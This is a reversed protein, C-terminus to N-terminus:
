LVADQYLANNMLNGYAHSMLNQGYQKEEVPHCTACDEPTVVTHVQYGNHEFTDSHKEPNLTHCEACGVVNQVLDSPVWKASVRRELEPKKLGELPSVRAHRSNQWGAVMGPSVGAHCDLCESSADSLEAAKSQAPFFLSLVIVFALLRM